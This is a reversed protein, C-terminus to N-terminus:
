ALLIIDRTKLSIDFFFLQLYAYSCYIKSTKSLASFFVALCAFPTASISKFDAYSYRMIQLCFCYVNTVFWCLVLCDTTMKEERCKIVVCFSIGCQKCNYVIAWSVILNLNGLVCVSDTRIAISVAVKIYWHFYYQIEQSLIKAIRRHEQGKRSGHSADVFYLYM